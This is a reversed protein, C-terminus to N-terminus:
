KDNISVKGLRRNDSAGFYKGNSIGGAQVAGFYLQDKVDVYPYGCNSVDIIYEESRGDELVQNM